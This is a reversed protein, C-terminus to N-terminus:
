DRWSEGRPGSSSFRDGADARPWSGTKICTIVDAAEASMPWWYGPALRHDHKAIQRLKPLAERLDPLRPRGNPAYATALSGIVYMSWFCVEISEEELGCLAAARARRHLKTRRDQVRQCWVLKDGAEGRVWGPLDRREFIEVLLEAARRDGMEGLGLIVAWLWERDPQPSALERRGAEVFYATGQGKTNLRSLVDAYGVRVSPNSVHEMLLPWAQHIKYLGIVDQAVKLRLRPALTRFRRLLQPVTSIGKSRLRALQREL